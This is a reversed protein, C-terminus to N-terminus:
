EAFTGKVMGVHMIGDEDFEDSCVRFGEREYFGIAYTQAELYMREPRMKEEIIRIGEHLIEGGLGEGRIATLVRGIQVVGEEDPKRFARLYATIKGGEEGFVHLSEYDAGDIDEYICTQEMVFVAERLRLIEYLERTTLEDFYKATIRM